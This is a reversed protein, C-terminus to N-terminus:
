VINGNRSLFLIFGTKQKLTWLFCKLVFWFQDPSTGKLDQYYDDFQIKKPPLNKGIGQNLIIIISHPKWQSSSRSMPELSALFTIFSFITISWILFTIKTLFFFFLYSGEVPSLIHTGKLFAFLLLRHSLAQTLFLGRQHRSPAMFWLSLLYYWHFYHSSQESIHFSVECIQFIHSLALFASHQATGQLICSLTSCWTPSPRQFRFSIGSKAVLVTEKGTFHSHYYHCM